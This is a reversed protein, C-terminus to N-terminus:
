TTIPAWDIANMIALENPNKTLCCDHLFRREEFASSLYYYLMKNSGEYSFSLSSCGVLEQRHFSSM